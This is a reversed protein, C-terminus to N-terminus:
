KGIRVKLYKRFQFYTVTSIVFLFVGFFGVIFWFTQLMTDNGGYKYFLASVIFMTMGLIIVVVLKRFTAKIDKQMDM